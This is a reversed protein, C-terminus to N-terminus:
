GAHAVQKRKLVRAARRCYHRSGVLVYARRDCGCECWPPEPFPGPPHRKLVRTILRQLDTRPM